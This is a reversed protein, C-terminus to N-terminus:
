KCTDTLDVQAWWIIGITPCSDDKVLDMRSIWFMVLLMEPIAFMAVDELTFMLKKCVPCFLQQM